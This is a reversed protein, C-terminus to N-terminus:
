VPNSYPTPSLRHIMEMGCGVNLAQSIINEKSFPINKVYRYQFSFFGREDPNNKIIKKTWENSFNGYTPLFYNIDSLKPYQLFVYSSLAGNLLPDSHPTKSVSTWEGDQRSLRFPSESSSYQFEQQKVPYGVLDKEFEVVNQNIKRTNHPGRGYLLKSRTFKGDNMSYSIEIQRNKGYKHSILANNNSEDRFAQIAEYVPNQKEIIPNRNLDLVQGLPKPFEEEVLGFVPYESTGTLNRLVVPRNPIVVFSMLLTLVISLASLLSKFPLGQFKEINLDKAKALLYVSYGFFSAIILRLFALFIADRPPNAAIYAFSVLATLAIVFATKTLNKTWLAVKRWRTNNKNAKRNGEMISLLVKREEVGLNSLQHSPYVTDIPIARGGLDFDTDRSTTILGVVGGTRTNLLPSGSFGRKIEGQKLKLLIGNKQSVSEGEYKVTVSDGSSYNESDSGPYGFLYLLEDTNPRNIDFYACPHRVDTTLKLFAIDSNQTFVLRVKATLIKEEVEGKKINKWLVTVPQANVGKVVHACTMIWGPAIFFGTGFSKNPTVLRVTCRTLLTILEQNM